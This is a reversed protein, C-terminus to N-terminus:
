SSLLSVTYGSDLTDLWSTRPDPSMTGGVRYSRSGKGGKVTFTSTMQSYAPDTSDTIFGNALITNQFNTRNANASAQETERFTVYFYNPSDFFVAEIGHTEYCDDDASFICVHTLPVIDQINSHTDPYNDVVDQATTLEAIYGPHSTSFSFFTAQSAASETAFAATATAGAVGPVPTESNTAALTVSIIAGVDDAVPTYTSSTAGSIAVGDRAWQYTITLPGHSTQPTGDAITIETGEVPVDMISPLPDFVPDAVGDRQTVGDLDAVSEIVFHHDPGWYPLLGAPPTGPTVISNGGEAMFYMMPDKGQLPDSSETGSGFVFPNTAFSEGELSFSNVSFTKGKTNPDASTGAVSFQNGSYYMESDIVCFNNIAPGSSAESLRFKLSGVQNRCRCGRVVVDKIPTGKVGSTFIGQASGINDFYTNMKNVLIQSVEDFPVNTFLQFTDSHFSSGAGNLNLVTCDSVMQSNSFLDGANNDYQARTVICLDGTASGNEGVTQAANTYSNDVSWLGKSNSTVYPTVGTIAYMEPKPQPYDGLGNDEPLGVEVYDKWVTTGEYGINTMFTKAANTVGQAWFDLRQPGMVDDISINDFVKEGDEDLPMANIRDAEAQSISFTLTRTNARSTLLDATTDIEVPSDDKIEFTIKTCNSSDNWLNWAKQPDNLNYRGLYDFEELIVKVKNTNLDIDCQKWGTYANLLNNKTTIEGSSWVGSGPSTEEYSQFTNSKATRYFTDTQVFTASDVKMLQNVAALKGTVQGTQLFRTGATSTGKLTWWRNHTQNSQSPLTGVTPDYDGDALLFRHGTGAGAAAATSLAANLETMNSVNYETPAGTFMMYSRIDNGYLRRPSANYGSTDSLYTESDIAGEMVTTLGAVRPTIVAQVEIDSSGMTVTIEYHGSANTTTVDVPAGGNAVFTVKEIGYLHDAALELTKTEGPAFNEWGPEVWHGISKMDGGHASASGIQTSDTGASWTGPDASGPVLSDSPTSQLFATQTATAAPSFGSSLIIDSGDDRKLMGQFTVNGSYNAPMTYILEGNELSFDGIFTDNIASSILQEKTYYTM